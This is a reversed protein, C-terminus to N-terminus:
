MNDIKAEIINQINQPVNSLFDFGTANEIADVSTRYVRWDTDISQNNPMDVAIVRTGSNVRTADNNGLPILVIIKWTRAPVNIKGNQLSNYTGNSGTGGTGYGGAIIYAEFTPSILSRTYEELSAWTQQNNRPSQPMMNTMLFTASNDEVSKTRDASPCIHGRDFGSGSYDNQTVRYWSAPLAPNSRFNDQRTTQGLWNNDLQWSTWNAHGKISNYSTAYQSIVMLYNDKETEDARANSPNGLALHDPADQEPKPEDKCSNLLFVLCSIKIIFFLNSFFPQKLLPKTTM